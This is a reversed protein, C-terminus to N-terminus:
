LSTQAGSGSALLAREDAGSVAMATRRASPLQWWAHLNARMRQQASMREAANIPQGDALTIRSRGIRRLWESDASAAIVAAAARCDERLAPDAALQQNRGCLQYTGHREPRHAIWLTRMLLEPEQRLGIRQLASPVPQRQLVETLAVLLAGSRSDYYRSQALRLLAARAGTVDDAQLRCTISIAWVAGNDPETAQLGALASPSRCSAAALFAGLRASGLAAARADLQAQLDQPVVTPESAWSWPMHALPYAVAREDPHDSALANRVLALRYDAHASELARRDRDQMWEISSALLQPGLTSARSWWLLAVSGLLLLMLLSMRKMTAEEEFTTWQERGVSAALDPLLSTCVWSAASRRERALECCRDRLAQRMSEGWAERFPRPYLHLLVGYLRDAHVLWWPEPGRSM